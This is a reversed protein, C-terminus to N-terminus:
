AKAILTEYIEAYARASAASEHGLSRRRSEEGMSEWKEPHDIFALLARACDAPDGVTFLYGNVGDEVLEPLAGGRSAIVPLGCAMAELTVISQTEFNSSIAFASAAHLRELLEKSENPLFGTFEVDDQIGLEGAMARLDFAAKSKVPEGGVIVLRCPRKARATAFGKLLIDLNKEAALRGVFVFTPVEATSKHTSPTFRATDVGCSVARTPVRVGHKKMLEVVHRSPGTVVDARNDFLTYYSWMAPRFLADKFGNTYEPSQHNTVVFPIGRKKAARMAALGIGSVHNTHIIDPKFDKVIHELRAFRGSHGVEEIRAKKRFPLAPKGGFFEVAVCYEVHEPASDILHWVATEIGGIPFYWEVTILVRLPTHM